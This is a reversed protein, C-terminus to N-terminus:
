VTLVNLKQNGQQPIQNQNIARAKDCLKPHAQAPWRLKHEVNQRRRLLSGERLLIPFHHNIRRAPPCVSSRFMAWRQVTPTPHVQNSCTPAPVHWYGHGEYETTTHSAEHSRM